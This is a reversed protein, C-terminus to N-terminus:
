LNLLSMVSQDTSLIFESMVGYLIDNFTLTDGFIFFSEVFV